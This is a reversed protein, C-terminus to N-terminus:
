AVATAEETVFPLGPPFCGIPFRYTKTGARLLDAAERFAAVFTAYAEYLEQRVKKRFAHFLPAASKKMKTPRTEPNQRCVEEAGLPSAGTQARAQEAEGIIEGVLNEIRQRYREPSLDKWCPLPTLTLTEQSTYDDDAAEKGGRRLAYERRRDYWTGQVTWEGALLPHV